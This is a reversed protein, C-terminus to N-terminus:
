WHHFAIMNVNCLAVLALMQMALLLAALLVEGTGVAPWWRLSGDAKRHLIRGFVTAEGAWLQMSAGDSGRSGQVTPSASALLPDKFSGLITTRGDLLLPREADVQLSRRM